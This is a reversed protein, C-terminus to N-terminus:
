IRTGKREQSRRWKLARFVFINNGIIYRRWLRRPEQMMRFFWELGCQRMWLPARKNKGGLFDLVGGMSMALPVHLRNLNRAAWLEQRPTGMGLVLVQAGSRNIGDALAPEDAFSFYGNHRGAIIVDPYMRAINECARDLVTQEAGLLYIAWGEQGLASMLSPFLDTGNLNKRLRGGAMRLAFKVGIGDPLVFDAQKLVRMYDPNDTALNFNHANVFCAHAPRLSLDDSAALEELKKQGNKQTPHAKVTDVLTTIISSVGANNVIVDFLNFYVKEQATREERAISRIWLSRLLLIMDSLPGMRKLYALNLEDDNIEMNMRQCLRKESILGKPIAICGAPKDASRRMAQPM